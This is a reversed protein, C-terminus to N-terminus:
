SYFECENVKKSVGQSQFEEEMPLGTPLPAATTIEIIYLDTSRRRWVRGLQDRLCGLVLLNFLLTDLGRRVQFFFFINFFFFFTEVKKSKTQLESPSSKLSARM